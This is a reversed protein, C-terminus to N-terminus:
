EPKDAAAAPVAPTAAEAPAAPEEPKNKTRSRPTRRRPNEEAEGYIREPRIVVSNAVVQTEDPPQHFGSVTVPDGQQALSLNNYLLGIKAEPSLPIAMPGRGTNLYIGKNDMGMVMGVVKYNGPVFGLQPNPKEHSASYVGPTFSEKASGTVAAPPMPQFLEIQDVPSIPIGAPGLSVTIRAMMQPRVYAMKADAVFRLRTPDDHLKITVDTGDDRTVVMLNGQSDKLKGKIDIVTDFQVTSQSFAPPAAAVAGKPTRPKAQAAADKEGVAYGFVIAIFGFTAFKTCRLSALSQSM